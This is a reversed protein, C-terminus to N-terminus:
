LQDFIYTPSFVLPQYLAAVHKVLCDAGLICKFVAFNCLVCLAEGGFWFVSSPVVYKSQPNRFALYIHIGVM